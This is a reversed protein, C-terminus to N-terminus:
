KKSGRKGWCEVKFDCFYCEKSGFEYGRDVFEPDNTDMLFKAKKLLGDVLRQDYTVVFEKEVRTDTGIYPVGDKEYIFIKSAYLLVGKTIPATIQDFIVKDEPYAYIGLEKMKNWM